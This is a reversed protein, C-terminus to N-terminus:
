LVLNSGIKDAILHCGCPVEGRCGSGDPLSCERAIRECREREALILETLEKLAQSRLANGPDSPGIASCSEVGFLRCKDEDTLLNM